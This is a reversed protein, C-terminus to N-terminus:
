YSERGHVGDRVTGIADEDLCSGQIYIGAFEYGLSGNEMGTTNCEARMARMHELHTRSWINCIEYSIPELMSILSLELEVNLGVSVM